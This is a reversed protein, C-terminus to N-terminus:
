QQQVPSQNGSRRAKSKKSNAGSSAVKEIKINLEPQKKSKSSQGSTVMSVAGTRISDANKVHM